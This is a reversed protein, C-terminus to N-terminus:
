STSHVRAHGARLRPRGPDTARQRAELVLAEGRARRPVDVVQLQRATQVRREDATGGRVRADELQAGVRGTRCGAHPEHQGRRVDLVLDAGKRDIRGLRLHPRDRMGHERAPADTVDALGDGDDNGLRGLFGHVRRLEDLEVELLERCHELGFVRPAAVGDQVVLRRVVHEHAPVACFAVNVSCELTCSVDDALSNADRPEDSRRELRAACKRGVVGGGIEQSDPDGRLILM